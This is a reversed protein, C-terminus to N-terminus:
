YLSDFIQIQIEIKAGHRHKKCRKHNKWHMDSKFKKCCITCYLGRSTGSPKKSKLKEKEWKERRLRDRAAKEEEEEKKKRQLVRKDRNKVFQALQRVRENYEDVWWFDKVTSFALWYDYFAAVQSYPSELNGFLPAKCVPATVMTQAYAIEQQFLTQFIDAYVRFFGKGTDGDGSYISDCFYPGLNIDSDRFEPSSSSDFGNLIQSRRSDYLSRQRPDSLVEYARIIEKFRVTANEQSIGNQLAKDPHVKLALSRFAARIEGDTATLEIGLIEYFCRQPVAAAAM